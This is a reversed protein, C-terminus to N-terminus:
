GPSRWPNIKQQTFCFGGTDTNFKGLKWERHMGQAKKQPPISHPSAKHPKEKRRFTSWSPALQGMFSGRPNGRHLHPSFPLFPTLQSVLCTKHTSKLRLPDQESAGMGTREGRESWPSNQPASLLDGLLLTPSKPPGRALLHCEPSLYGWVRPSPPRKPTSSPARVEAPDWRPVRTQPCISSKPLTRKKKIQSLLSGVSDHGPKHTVWGGPGAKFKPPIANEQHNKTLPVPQAREAATKPSPRAIPLWPLAPKDPASRFTKNQLIKRHTENKLSFLMSDAGFSPSKSWNGGRAQAKGPPRWRQGTGDM